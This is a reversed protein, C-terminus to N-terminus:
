EHKKKGKVKRTLELKVDDILQEAMSQRSDLLIILTTYHSHKRLWAHAALNLYAEAEHDCVVCESGSPHYRVFAFPEFGPNVPKVHLECIWHGEKWTTHPLVAELAARNEPLLWPTM